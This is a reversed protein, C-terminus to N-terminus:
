RSQEGNTNDRERPVGKRFRSPLKIGFIPLVQTVIILGCFGLFLWIATSSGEESARQAATLSLFSTAVVLAALATLWWASTVPHRGEERSMGEELEADIGPEPAAQSSHSAEPLAGAEHQKKGFACEVAQSLEATDDPSSPRLAHYFIGENRVQRAEALPMEDSVMIVNLHRNCKKLLHILDRSSVKKDFDSSLLLVPTQKELISCLVHVASDTTEVAYGAKQFFDALQRRYKGDKDAILIGREDM